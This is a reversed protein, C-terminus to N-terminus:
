NPPAVYWTAELSAVGADIFDLARAGSDVLDFQRGDIYPGRDRVTAIIWLGNDPNYFIVTTGMPLSKHAVTYSPYHNGFTQGSAMERGEFVRGGYWSVTSMQTEVQKSIPSSLPLVGITMLTVLVLHM